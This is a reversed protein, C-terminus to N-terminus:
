RATTGESDTTTAAAPDNALWQDRISRLANHLHVRTAAAALDADGDLIARVILLHEHAAESLRAPSGKALRRARAVHTRLGHLSAVLHPNRVAGDIAEDFRDVLAYYRHRVPDDHELLVPVALLDRELAEFPAADRRRAALAAAQMELAERVEYLDTLDDVSVSTVVLGRGSPEVLADATLRALAERLPTRSVGLRAAQEVEGLVTGPALRWSVIEDRITAYARDSAKGFQAPKLTAVTAERATDSTEAHEDAM